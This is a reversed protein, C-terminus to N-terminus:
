RRKPRDLVVEGKRLQRWDQRIRKEIYFPDNELAFAERALGARREELRRCEASLAECRMWLAANKEHASISSRILLGFLVAAAVSVLVRFAMDLTSLPRRGDAPEGSDSAHIAPEPAPHRQMLSVGSMTVDEPTDPPDNHNRAM